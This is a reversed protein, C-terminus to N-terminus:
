AQLDVLAGRSSVGDGPASIASLSRASGNGFSLSRQLAELNQISNTITLRANDVRGKSERADFRNVAALDSINLGTSDLPQPTVTLRGGFSTTQIRIPGSSSSILNLGSQAVGSVLSDIAEIIRNAAAEITVGSIRTGGPAIASNSNTQSTFARDNLISSLTDLANLIQHAATLSDKILQQAQAVSVDAPARASQSSLVGDPLNVRSASAIRSAPSGPTLPTSSLKTTTLSDIARQTTTITSLSQSASFEVAM